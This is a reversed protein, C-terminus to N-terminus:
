SRTRRAPPRRDLRRPRGAPVRRQPTFVLPDRTTVFTAPQGALMARRNFAFPQPGLFAHGVLQLREHEHLVRGAVRRPAPLRLLRGSTSATATGRARDRREDDLGRHVRRDAREDRSSRRGLPQRAPRLARGPRRRRREPVVGGFGNWVTSIGVPGLMSAGTTKNFVQFGENVIQVYQTAGVEGNTDPPACNCAVGPFPIGNFNLGPAPMNPLSPQSQVVTDRVDKHLSVARPNPSAEMERGSALPSARMERLPRSTDNHYSHGVIAHKGAAGATAAEPARPLPGNVKVSIGGGSAGALVVGAGVSLAAVAFMGVVVLARRARAARSWQQALKM